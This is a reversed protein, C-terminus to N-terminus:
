SCEYALSTSIVNSIAVLDINTVSGQICQTINIYVQSSKQAVANPLCRNVYMAQNIQPINFLHYNSSSMAFENVAAGFHHLGKFLYCILM